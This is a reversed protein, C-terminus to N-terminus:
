GRGEGAIVQRYPDLELRGAVLVPCQRVMEALLTEVQLEDGRDTEGPGSFGQVATSVLVVRLVRLHDQVHQLDTRQLEKM